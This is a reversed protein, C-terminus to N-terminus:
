QNKFDKIGSVDPKHLAIYYVTLDNEPEFLISLMALENAKAFFYAMKPGGIKREPSYGELESFGENAFFKRYFELIKEKTNTSGFKYTDIIVLQSKDERQFLLNTQAPMLKTIKEAQSFCPVSFVACLTALLILSIIFVTPQPNYAKRFM